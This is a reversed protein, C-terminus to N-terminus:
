LYDVQFPLIGFEKAKLQFDTFLTLFVNNPRMHAVLCVFLSMFFDSFFHLLQRM